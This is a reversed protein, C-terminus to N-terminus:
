NKLVENNRLKNIKKYFPIRIFFLIFFIIALIPAVFPIFIWGVTGLGGHPNEPPNLKDFVLCFLFVGFFSIVTGFLAGIVGSIIRFIIKM